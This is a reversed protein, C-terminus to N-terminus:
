YYSLNDGRLWWPTGQPAPPKSRPTNPGMLVTYFELLPHPAIAPIKYKSFVHMSKNRKKDQLLICPEIAAATNMKNLRM